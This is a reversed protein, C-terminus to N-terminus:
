NQQQRPARGPLVFQRYPGCDARAAKADNTLQEGFRQKEGGNSRCDANQSRVASQRHNLTQQRSGRKSGLYRNADVQRHENEADRYCQSGTYQEPKPRRQLERPRLYALHHLVWLMRIAACTASVNNNSAAAPEEM